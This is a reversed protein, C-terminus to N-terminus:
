RAREAFRTGRNQHDTLHTIILRKDEGIPKGDVSSLWATADTTRIRVPAASTTEVPRTGPFVTDKHAEIPRWDVEWGHERAIKRALRFVPYADPRVVFMLYLEKGTERDAKPGNAVRDRFVSDKALIQFTSEGKDQPRLSREEDRGLVAHTDPRVLRVCPRVIGDADQAETPVFCEVWVQLRERAMAAKPGGADLTDGPQAELVAIEKALAAVEDELDKRNAALDAIGKELSATETELTKVVDRMEEIDKDKLLAIEEETVMQRAGATAEERKRLAEQQETTMRDLEIRRVQADKEAKELTKPLDAAETADLNLDALGNELAARAKSFDKEIKARDMKKLMDVKDVEKSQLERLDMLELNVKSGANGSNILSMVVLVIMIGATNAIIDVFSDLNGQNEEDV